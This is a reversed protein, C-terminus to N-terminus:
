GHSDSPAVLDLDDLLHAEGVGQSQQVGGESSVAAELDVLALVLQHAHMGIAFRAVHILDELEQLDIVVAADPLVHVEEGVVPGGVVRERWGKLLVEAARAPVGLQLVLGQVGVVTVHRGADLAGGLHDQQAHDVVQM